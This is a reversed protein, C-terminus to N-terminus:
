DPTRIRRAGEPTLVGDVRQDLEDHPLPETVVEDEFVIAYVPVGARRRPLSRDYCGGGQGLRHGEPDVGSAPVLAVDVTAFAERGLPAEPAGLEAWDLDLDPRTIPVLVTYGAEVLAANLAATPPEVPWSEYSSVRAPPDVLSRVLALGHEALSDQHSDEHSDEHSDADPRHEARARRRARVARRLARKVSTM